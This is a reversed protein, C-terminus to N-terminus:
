SKLLRTISPFDAGVGLVVVMKEYPNASRINTTTTSLLENALKKINENINQYLENM